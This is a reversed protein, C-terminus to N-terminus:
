HNYEGKVNFKENGIFWRCYFDQNLNRKPVFDGYSQRFEIKPARFRWCKERKICDQNSCKSIDPM